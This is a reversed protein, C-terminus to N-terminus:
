EEELVRQLFLTEAARQYDRNSKKRFGHGEDMALLYWAKTGNERMAALIQEAESAPVRPDNAGQIIFLPKTIRDANNLPSIEDFFAAIEPDREDGYEARRLDRRYGKTNTLFTRFDSIGVINVGALLRDAYDVMSALVMYGGYSGGYVIVRDEDLDPQEAIWDLLAGIDEVSRKRNIGNDMSRYEEGYGDSGRVNPRIVAADLENVWYQWTSSFSPRSQGEPGGHIQIIVPHPGEGAPKYVFAPIAFGASPYRVLEPEVFRATNLGGLEAQTWRTLDRNETDYTYVDAPSTAATLTFGVLRGAPHWDPGYVIGAPLQPGDTVLGSTLDLFKLSGFGDENLTFAVRTEDPSLAMGDVDWNIGPTMDQATGDPAIRLITAYDSGRDSVTLVSGDRLVAAGAYANEEAPLLETAAGTEMDILYLDSHSASYYRQLVLTQGDASFDAPFNAGPGDYITQAAMRTPPQAVDIRWDPNGDEAVYYAVRSGDDSILFGGARAGEPTFPFVGGTGIDHYYGRYFEDGGTDKGFLFASKGPYAVAGGIPEDYFTLQRRAGMPETVHHIQAVEGFRTSILISGDPLFDQFGHSRVNQYRRITEEVDAPIDPVGEIVLQGETRREEAAAVTPMATLLLAAGLTKLFTTM